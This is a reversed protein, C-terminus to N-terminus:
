VFAFDGPNLVAHNALMITETHLDLGSQIRWQDTALIQTITAGQAESGFGSFVLIDGDSRDFDAVTAGDASGAFLVFMDSGDGGVLTNAGLTALTDSSGTGTGTLGAGTIYMAEVNAPLTFSVTAMVTDYGGNAAEIVADATNNVYFLDDGGIGVLTNV